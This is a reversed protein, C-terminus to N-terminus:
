REDRSERIAQIWEEEPVKRLIKGAEKMDKILRERKKERVADQLAKKIVDSPSIDLEDIEDKLSKEIKASITATETMRVVM